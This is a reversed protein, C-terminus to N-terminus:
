RGAPFFVDVLVVLAVDELRVLLGLKVLRSVAPRDVVHPLVLLDTGVHHRIMTQVITQLRLHESLMRTLAHLEYGGTLDEVNQVDVCLHVHGVAEATDFLNQQLVVVVGHM